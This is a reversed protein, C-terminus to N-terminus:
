FPMDDPGDTNQSVAQAKVEQPTTPYDFNQNPSVANRSQESKSVQSVVHTNFKEEWYAKQASDDLVSKGNQMFPQGNPLLVPIKAPVENFPFKWRLDKGGFLVAAGAYYKDNKVTQYVRMNLEELPNYNISCLSNIISHTASTHKMEIQMIEGGDELKLIFVKYKAGQYEKEQISAHTLVGSITDFTGTTTWAGNVKESLKFCPKEEASSKGFLSYYKTKQSATNTAAM